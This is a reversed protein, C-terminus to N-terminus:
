AADKATGTEEMEAPAETGASNLLSLLDAFEPVAKTATGIISLGSFVVERTLEQRLEESEEDFLLSEVPVAQRDGIGLDLTQAGFQIATYGTALPKEPDQIYLENSAILAERAEDPGISFVDGYYQGNYEVQLTASGANVERDYPVYGFAISIGSAEGSGPIGLVAQMSDESQYHELFACAETQGPLTDSMYM